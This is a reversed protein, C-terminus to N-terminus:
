GLGLVHTLAEDGDRVMQSNCNYNVKPIGGRPAAVFREATLSPRSRWSRAGLNLFKLGHFPSLPSPLSSTVAAPKRCRAIPETRWALLSAAHRTATRRVSRESSIIRGCLQAKRRRM